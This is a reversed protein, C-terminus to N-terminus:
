NDVYLVSFQYEWILGSNYERRRVYVDLIAYTELTPYEYSQFTGVPWDDPVTIEEMALFRIEM